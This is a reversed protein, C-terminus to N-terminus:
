LGFCIIKPFSISGCVLIPLYNPLGGMFEKSLLDRVVETPYTIGYPNILIALYSLAVAIAFDRLLKNTLSGRKIFLLNVAEGFLALSVFFLGILFGGHTNVWILFLMPYLFFLNKSSSKARFYILLTITFFLTSFLEPKVYDSTLNLAVALLLLGMAHNIDFADGTSRIYYRYIAFIGLFISWQIIYLGPISAARYAIYLISSGIWTVYKWGALCPTWSFQCHDITWTLNKVYHEGYKLHFWIDYDEGMTPYYALVSAAMLALCIWFTVKSNSIYLSSNGIWEILSPYKHIVIQTNPQQIKSEAKKAVKTTREKPM